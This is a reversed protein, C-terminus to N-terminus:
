RLSARNLFQAYPANFLLKVTGTPGNRHKTLIVEAVGHDATDPDYYEDRYLMMILDSDQELAGSERLDSMMPRKNTRSEVSRNLQSILNITTGLEIALRKFSRTIQALDQVRNAGGTSGEMLQLYDVIILGLSGHKTKIERAKSAIEPVTIGFSQDLFLPMESLRNIGHGMPTWEHQAVRGTRLRGMEIQAETSLMRYVLQQSSMELTCILVPHGNKAANMGTLISFATKGMSPRGATIILDGPQWGQTMADLDYFGSPIGPLIQGVSRQEIESFVDSVIDKVPVVSSTRLHQSCELLQKEASQMVEVLPKHTEFSLQEIRRAIAGLERRIYKEAILEAYRDCNVSSICRDVLSALKTQGGVSDLESADRLATAVYMLDTPRNEKKLALAIAYICKHSHIYFAQPNPQIPEIRAIAEPDILIAGLVAEEAEINSPPMRLASADDRPSPVASLM